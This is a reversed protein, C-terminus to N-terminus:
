SQNKEPVSPAPRWRELLDRVLQRRLSAKIRRTILGAREVRKREPCRGYLAADVERALEELAGALKPQDQASQALRLLFERPTEGPRKRWPGMRCRHVLFFYLGRPTSRNKWLFIRLQAFEAWSGFLTRLARWLSPRTRRQAPKEGKVTGKGLKIKGLQALVWIVLGALLALQLVIFVLAFAPDGEQQGQELDFNGSADWLPQGTSTEPEPFLAAFALLLRYAADLVARVVGTLFGWLAVLGEGAPAAAVAVLLCMVLFIGGFAAALVALSRGGLSHGARCVSVSLMAAAFGCLVPVSWVLPTGTAATYATFIVLTLISADLYLLAERLGIPHFALWGGSGVVWATFLVAFILTAPGKWTEFWLYAALYAAGLLVNLFFVGRLTRERRVFLRNVGYVLPAFLLLTQPFFWQAPTDRLTMLYYFATLDCALVFQAAASSFGRTDLM